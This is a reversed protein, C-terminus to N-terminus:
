VFYYKHDYLLWAENGSCTVTCLVGVSDVLSNFLSLAKISERSSWGKAFGELPRLIFHKSVAFRNSSNAEYFVLQSPRYVASLSRRGAPVM